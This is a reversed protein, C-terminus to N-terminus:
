EESYREKCAVNDPLMCFLDGNALETFYRSLRDGKDTSKYAAESKNASKEVLNQKELFSVAHNVFADDLNTRRKISEIKAPKRGEVSRLIELYLELKSPKPTQV